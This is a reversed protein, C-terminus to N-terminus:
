VGWFMAKMFGQEAKRYLLAHVQDLSVHSHQNCFGVVSGRETERILSAESDCLICNM